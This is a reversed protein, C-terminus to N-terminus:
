DGVLEGRIEYARFYRDLAVAVFPSAIEVARVQRGLNEGPMHIGQAM